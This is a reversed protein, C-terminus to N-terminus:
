LKSWLVWFKLHNSCPMFEHINKMKKNCTGREVNYVLNTGTNDPSKRTIKKLEVFNENPLIKNKRNSKLKKFKLTNEPETQAEQVSKARRILKGIMTVEDKKMWFSQKQARDRSIMGIRQARKSKQGQNATILEWFTALDNEFFYNRDSRWPVYSWNDVSLYLSM